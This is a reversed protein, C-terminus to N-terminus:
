KAAGPLKIAGKPPAKLTPPLPDSPAITLKPQAPLPTTVVKGGLGLVDLMKAQDTYEVLTTRAAECSLDRAIPTQTRAAAEFRRQMEGFKKVRERSEEGVQAIMAMAIGTDAKAAATALNCFNIQEKVGEREAVLTDNKKRLERADDEAKIIKPRDEEYQDAKGSEVGSNRGTLYAGGTLSAVVLAIVLILIGSM